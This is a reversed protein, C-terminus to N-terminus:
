MNRLVRKFFRKRQGLRTQMTEILEIVKQIHDPSGNGDALKDQLENMEDDLLADLADANEVFEKIEDAEFSEVDKELMNITKNLKKELQNRVPNAATVDALYCAGQVVLSEKKLDKALIKEDVLNANKGTASEYQLSNMGETLLGMTWLDAFTPAYEHRPIWMQKGKTFEEIKGALYEFGELQESITRLLEPRDLLVAAALVESLKAYNKQAEELRVANAMVDSNWPDIDMDQMGCYVDLVLPSQHTQIISELAEGKMAVLQDYKMEETISEGTRQNQTASMIADVRQKITVSPVMTTRAANTYFNVVRLEPERKTSDITMMGAQLARAVVDKAENFRESESAAAGHGMYFYEPKPSPLLTWNHTYDSEPKGDWVLHLGLAIEPIHLMAEYSQQMSSIQSYSSMLLGDYATVCYIHDRLSSGKIVVHQQDVNSFHALHKDANDPVAMYSFPIYKAAVKSDLAFMPMSSGRIANFLDNMHNQQQVLDDGVNLEMLRDLSQTNMEGFLEDLREVLPKYKKEIGTSGYLFRVGSSMTDVNKECVLSLDLMGGLFDKTIKHDSNDRQFVSDIRDKMTSVEFLEVSLDSDNIDMTLFEQEMLELDKCLPKLADRVFENIRKLLKEQQQAVTTMFAARRLVDYFNRMSNLYNELAQRKGLFPPKFFDPWTAQCGDHANKIATSVNAASSLIAATDKKLQAMLGTEHELYYLLAFPGKTNDEMVSRCFNQFVSWCEEFYLDGFKGAQPNIVRTQWSGYSPHDRRDHPRIAATRLNTMAADDSPDAACWGPLPASACFKQLQVNMDGRIKASRDMTRGDKLLSADPVLHGYEDRLPMFDKFLLQSQYYLMRKKPIKKSYAGIARYNYGMMPLDKPMSAVYGALNNEHSMYTFAVTGDKSPKETAMYHLLNEAVLQQVVQAPNRFAVHDAGIGSLLICADYPARSWTISESGVYKITYPTKHNNVRMWFDLEKLAAYGNAEMKRRIDASVSVSTSVDPMVIYGTIRLDMGALAPDSKVVHRVIQPVDLFTGSGTGGCIGTCIAIELRSLRVGSGVEVHTIKKLASLIADRVRTYDRNLMFRAAQRLGGAGKGAADATLDKHVWALEEPKLTAARVSPDLMAAMGTLSIDLFEHPDLVGKASVDTDIGLYATYPPIPITKGEADVPLEFREAFFSKVKKLIDVGTGGLGIVLLPASIKKVREISIDLVDDREVQATLNMTM